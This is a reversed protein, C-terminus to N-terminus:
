AQRKALWRWVYGDPRTEGTEIYRLSNYNQLTWSMLQNIGYLGCFLIQDNEQLHEDVEPLLMFDDNRKLLLPLCKLQRNRDRPDSTLHGLRVDNNKNLSDIITLAQKSNIEITWIDPVKNDSVSFIKATLEKAWDNKNRRALRLFDSLLPATLIALLKLTLIVSYQMVRNIEAVEFIIQNSRKNQRAVTDNSSAHHAHPRQGSFPERRIM